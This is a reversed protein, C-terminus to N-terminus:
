VPKLESNIKGAQVARTAVGVHQVGAVMTKWVAVAENAEQAAAATGSAYVRRRSLGQNRREPPREVSGTNVTSSQQRGAPAEERFVFFM